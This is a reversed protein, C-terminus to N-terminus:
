RLPNSSNNYKLCWREFERLLQVETVKYRRAIKTLSLVDNIYWVRAQKVDDDKM